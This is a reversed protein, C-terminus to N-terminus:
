PLFDHYCRVEIMDGELVNLAAFLTPMKRLMQAPEAFAVERRLLEVSVWCGSQALECGIVEWGSLVQMTETLQERGWSGTTKSLATM